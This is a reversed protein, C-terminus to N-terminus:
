ALSDKLKKLADAKLAEKNKKSVKTNLGADPEEEVPETMIPPPKVENVPEPKVKETITVTGKPCKSHGCPFM